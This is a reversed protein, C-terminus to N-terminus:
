AMSTVMPPGITVTIPSCHPHRAVKRTTAQQATRPTAAMVRRTGEWRPPPWFSAIRASSAVTVRLCTSHAGAIM